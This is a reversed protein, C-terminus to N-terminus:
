LFNFFRRYALFREYFHVEFQTGLM